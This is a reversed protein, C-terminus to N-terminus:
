LQIMAEYFKMAIAAIEKARDSGNVVARAGIFDTNQDTIYTGLKRTTWWGGIMGDVLLLAAYPRLLAKDPDNVFDIGYVKTVEAYNDYHTIQQWGRGYYSKGTKKHPLAYNTKIDGQKYLQAVAAMAGKDTQAFGERVPDWDPNLRGHYAEKYATALIYAIKRYDYVMREICTDYIQNVTDVVGQRLKGGFLSARISSFFAAKNM